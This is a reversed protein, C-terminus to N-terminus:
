KEIKAGIGLATFAMTIMTIGGQVDDSAISVIGNLLLALVGAWTKWGKMPLKM